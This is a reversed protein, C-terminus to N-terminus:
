PYVQEDRKVLNGPAPSPNYPATNNPVTDSFCESYGTVRFKITVGVGPSMMGYAYHGANIWATAITQPNSSLMNRAWEAELGDANYIPTSASCLLHTTKLPIAGHNVMSGYNPDCLANCANVAMWKLNGGFGFQCMRLWANDGNDNPNGSPFYTQKSQSSGASYDPDTGYDGHSGLVGITARTFMEGGGYGQDSRRIDWVSLNGDSKNTALKWGGDLFAFIMSDVANDWPLPDYTAPSTSSIGDLHIKATLPPPIGNGPLSVSRGAKYTWYAVAFNNVQNKVAATPSRTPATTSQAAPGGFDEPSPGNAGYGGSISSSQARSSRLQGQQVSQPVQVEIFPQPDPVIWVGNSKCPPLPPLEIFYSTLGAALAQRVTTPFWTDSSEPATTFSTSGPASSGGSEGGSGGSGASFAQGNTQASILYKYVGDPINTGGDGTGDWNLQLSTGSGTVTRVANGAVNIVQLTWNVNAAFTATVQQTQGLSPEFFAESFAVKTILNSFTVAVYPSVARGIGVPYPGSPGPLASLAKATAFLTHPGNPWECTNIVYNTGDVSPKMEQGDVYLKTSLIPLSSTAIVSVTVQDSLISGNTQSMIVVLPGPGTNTGENVIRYFRVPGRKPHPIAPAVHYNGTDLWFTNAGHSPYSDYLTNWVAYGINTGILRDAYDIRYVTNSESQWALRIAGEETASVGTFQLANQAGAVSASLVTLATINSLSKFMGKITKM